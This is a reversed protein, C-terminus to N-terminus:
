DGKGVKYVYGVVVTALSPGLVLAHLARIAIGEILISDAALDTIEATLEVLSLSHALCAVLPVINDIAGALASSLVAAAGSPVGVSADLARGAPVEVGLSNALGDVILAGGPVVTAVAESAISAEDKGVSNTAGVRV